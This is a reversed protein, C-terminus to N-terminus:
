GPLERELAGLGLTLIIRALDVALQRVSRLILPVISLREEVIIQPKVQGPDFQFVVARM